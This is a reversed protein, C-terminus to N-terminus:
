ADYEAYYVIRDAIMELNATPTNQIYGELVEKIIFVELFYDFGPCKEKSIIAPPLSQEEETLVLIVAESNSNFKGDIRKAYIDAHDDLEDIKSICEKITMIFLNATNRININKGYTALRQGGETVYLKCLPQIIVRIYIVIM